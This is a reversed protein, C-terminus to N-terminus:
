RFILRSMLILFPIALLIISLVIFDSFGGCLIVMSQVLLVILMEKNLRSLRKQAFLHQKMISNIGVIAAGSIVVFSLRDYGQNEFNYLWKYLPVSLFILSSFLFIILVLRKDILRNFKDRSFRGLYLSSISQPLSLVIGGLPSILSYYGIFEISTSPLIYLQDMKRSITNTIVSFHSRLAFIFIKKQLSFRFKGGYFWSLFSATFSALFFTFLLTEFETIKYFLPILFIGKLIVMLIRYYMIRKIMGVGPCYGNLHLDFFQHSLSLMILRVSITQDFIDYSQFLGFFLLLLSLIVIYHVLSNSLVYIHDITNTNRYIVYTGPFNIALLSALLGAISIATYQLGKASLGFYKVILLNVLLMAVFDLWKLTFLLSGQKTLETLRM